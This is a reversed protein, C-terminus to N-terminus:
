RSEASAIVGDLLGGIAKKLVPGLILGSGPVIPTSQVRYHIRTGEPVSSLEVTGVHDRVPLGSVLRYAFRSPRVFETVEEVQTPGVIGIRRRAGVGNQDTDGPRELVSTRLPTMDQYSAHDTLRDFVAEPTASSTRTVHFDIM